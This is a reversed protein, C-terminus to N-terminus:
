GELRPDPIGQTRLVCSVTSILWPHGPRIAYITKNIERLITRRYAAPELPDFYSAAVLTSVWEGQELLEIDDETLEIDLSSLIKLDARQPFRSILDDLEPSSELPSQSSEQATQPSQESEDESEFSRLKAQFQLFKLENDANARAELAAKYRELLESDSM